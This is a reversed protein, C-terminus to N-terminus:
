IFGYAVEKLIENEINIYREKIRSGGRIEYFNCAPKNDELVWILMPQLKQTSLREQVHNFLVRGIGKNQYEKIIYIAYLEGHYIEDNSRERGCTSFGVIGNTSEEAVFISIEDKKSNNIINKMAQERQEYSLNNLYENSLIGRYASRWTDVNVKAISLVDSIKAERIIM